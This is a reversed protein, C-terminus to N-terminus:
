GWMGVIVIGIDRLPMAHWARGDTMGVDGVIVIGIDRLPMATLAFGGKSTGARRTSGYGM